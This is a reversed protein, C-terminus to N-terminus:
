SAAGATALFTEEVFKAAANWGGEQTALDEFDQEQQLSCREILARKSVRHEQWFYSFFQGPNTIADLKENGTPEAAATPAAGAPRMRAWQAQVAPLNAAVGVIDTNLAELVDEVTCKAAKATANLWEAAANMSAEGIPDSTAPAAEEPAGDSPEEDEEVFSGEIIEGTALDVETIPAPGTEEAYRMPTSAEIYRPPTTPEDDAPTSLAISDLGNILDPAYARCLRKMCAHRMMDRPYLSWPQGPKILNAKKADEITYTYEAEVNLSPRKIRMTCKTDTLEVIEFSIGKEGAMAIGAMLEASPQPKGNVIYINRLAAMPPVGVELGYAMVAFVKAPSDLAAPFMQGKAGMISNALRDIAELDKTSPVLSTPPTVKVPVLAHEENTMMQEKVQVQAWCYGRYTAGACDCSTEGDIGILVRHYEGPTTRSPVRVEREM